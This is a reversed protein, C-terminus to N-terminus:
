GSFSNHLKGLVDQIYVTLLLTQYMVTKEVLTELEQIPSSICQFWYGGIHQDFKAMEQWKSSAGDQLGESVIPPLM